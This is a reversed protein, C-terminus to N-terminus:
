QRAERYTGYPETHRATVAVTAVSRGHVTPALPVAVDCRIVIEVASGPRLCSRATPRCRIELAAPSLRVGQDAMALRAAAYARAAATGRDPSTVYVRGAVRAAETAGFAARQVSVVGVMVYVLPVLLLLGLWTVEVLASGGEGRLRRTAWRM